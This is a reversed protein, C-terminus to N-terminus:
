SGFWMKVTKSDKPTLVELFCHDPDIAVWERCVHDITSRVFRGSKVSVRSKLKQYIDIVTGDHALPFDVEVVVDYQGDSLNTRLSKLEISFNRNPSLDLEEIPDHVAALHPEDWRAQIELKLLM